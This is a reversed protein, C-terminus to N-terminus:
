HRRFVFAAAAASALIVALILGPGTKPATYAGSVSPKPKNQNVGTSPAAPPPTSAVTSGPKIAVSVENNFKGTMVSDTNAPIPDKVRVTFKKEISSKGPIDLPTWILSNSSSNYNAGTADILTALQSIDEINVEVVYGPVTEEGKNEVTLTYQVTDRPSAGVAAADGNKTQNFATINMATDAPETRNRNNQWVALAIAAGVVIIVALIILLRRM